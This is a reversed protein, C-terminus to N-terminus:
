FCKQNSKLKVYPIEWKYKYIDVTGFCDPYIFDGTCGGCYMYKTKGCIICRMEGRLWRRIKRIFEVM